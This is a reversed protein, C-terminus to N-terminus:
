YKIFLSKGKFFILFLLIPVLSCLNIWFYLIHEDVELLLSTAQYVLIPIIAIALACIFKSKYHSQTKTDHSKLSERYEIFSYIAFIGLPFGSLIINLIFVWLRKPYGSLAFISALMGIIFTIIITLVIYISLNEFIM